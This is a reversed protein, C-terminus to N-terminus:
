MEICFKCNEFSNSIAIMVKGKILTKKVVKFFNDSVLYFWNQSINKKEIKHKIRKVEERFLFKKEFNTSIGINSFSLDGDILM